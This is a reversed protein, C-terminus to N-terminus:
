QQDEAEDEWEDEDYEYDDMWRYARIGGLTFLSAIVLASAICYQCWKELVFAEIYTLYGSFLVGFMTMSFVLTRGYDMLFSIRDELALIGLIALYGGLGLVAVPVGLLKSYVSNQVANCDLAGSEVCALPQESLESYSLYGSIGLGILALVIMTIRLWDRATHSQVTMIKQNQSKTKTTM